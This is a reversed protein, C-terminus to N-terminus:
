VVSKRDEDQDGPRFRKVDVGNSVQWLKGPPLGSALYAESLRPSVSLFLDARSYCWFALRGKSRISLPEDHGGTQLTLVLKKRLFKALITLPINKQSFGHFHVINFRRCLQIFISALRLSASLKSGIRNVDVMVRYVPVGDVERVGLRSFETATTLVTFKARGELARVVERCQLGGGSVEPYYAGTVM